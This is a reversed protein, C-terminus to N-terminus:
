RTSVVSVLNEEDSVNCRRDNEIISEINGDLMQIVKCARDAVIQNHTVVILTTGKEHISDFIDLIHDQNRSDLNGTPEDALLLAPENVIARAIAVRQQEGGSLENPFAYARDALGVTKLAELAKEHREDKPEKAYYLPLAVNDLINMSDILYFFQFVFGVFANRFGSLADDDLVGLDYGNVICKGGTPIDLGGIIHLLTSKGSGSPGVVACYDGKEISLNVSKLADIAARGEGYKKSVEHLEVINDM